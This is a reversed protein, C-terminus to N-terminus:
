HCNSSIDFVVRHRHDNVGPRAASSSSQSPRMTSWESKGKKAKTDTANIAKAEAERGTQVAARIPEKIFVNIRFCNDTFCGM